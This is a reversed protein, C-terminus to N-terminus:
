KGGDTQVFLYVHSLFTLGCFFLVLLAIATLARKNDDPIMSFVFFLSFAVLLSVFFTTLWARYKKEYKNMM